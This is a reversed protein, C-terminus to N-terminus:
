APKRGTYESFIGLEVHRQVDVFGASKMAQLVKEPPVCVQITDWYYEWLVAVDKHCFTVRSLVPIVVKIYSKLMAQEFRGNPRTIELICAKGGPKLVRHFEKFVVILDSLHRLAYGMSLFDVSSDDLPIQEAYALMARINLQKKAQELMGPSPDLGILKQPDGIIKIAERAVLGTGTAVDLISMGQKLGARELAKRRYWKGTGLAMIGEARDYGSAGRDFLGRM